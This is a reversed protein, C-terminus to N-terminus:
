TAIRLSELNGLQVDVIVQQVVQDIVVVQDLLVPHDPPAVVHKARDPDM